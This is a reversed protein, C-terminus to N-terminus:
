ACTAFGQGGNRYAEQGFERSDLQLSLAPCQGEPKGSVGWEYRNEIAMLRRCVVMGRDDQINITRCVKFNM